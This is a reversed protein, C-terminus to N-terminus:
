GCGTCGGCSPTECDEALVHRSKLRDPQLELAGIELALWDRTLAALERYVPLRSARELDGTFADAWRGPHEEVFKRLADVCIAGQEEWSEQTAHATRQLLVSCYELQVGIHDPQWRTSDPLAFGFARYFGAIDALGAQKRFIDREYASEFPVAAMAGSFLRNFEAEREEDATDTLLDALAELRGAWEPGILGLWPALGEAMEMMEDRNAADPYAYGLALLRYVGARLMLGEVASLEKLM